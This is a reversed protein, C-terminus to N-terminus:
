WHVAQRRCVDKIAPVIKLAVLTGSHVQNRAMYWRVWLLPPMELMSNPRRSPTVWVVRLALWDAQLQASYLTEATGFDRGQRLAIEIRGASDDTVAQATEGADAIGPADM